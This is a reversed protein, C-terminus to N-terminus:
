VADPEGADDKGEKLEEQIQDLLQYIGLMHNTNEYTAQITLVELTNRIIQIKVAIEKM